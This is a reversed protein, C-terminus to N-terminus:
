DRNNESLQQRAERLADNYRLGDTDYLGSESAEATLADLTRRREDQKATQYAVIDCLRIRRHRGTPTREFPIRERELLKILTPRSIGLFNAAEQTTLLQDVPAVTIAKGLRMAEVVDRLVTFAEEPIPVHQGDPGLLVAPSPHRELFLSLDLMPELDASSLVTTQELPTAKRTTM